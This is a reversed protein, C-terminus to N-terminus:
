RRGGPAKLPSEPRLVPVTVGAPAATTSDSPARRLARNVDDLLAGLPVGRIRCAERVTISRALTKRLWPNALPQFGHLLFAQLTEPAVELLWGVRQDPTALLPRQGSAFTHVADPRARMLAWLGIAWIAIGGVELIGSAGAIAFAKPTFDTAIQGGVRLGCGLNVLVFTPLLGPLRSPDAGALTPVVKAAVGLIMMSIFGVTIAHRAAGHYAHSFTQGSWFLFLPTSVVLALSVFLWSFAARYFKFSRDSEECAGFLGLRAALISASVAFLVAFGYAVDGMPPSEIRWRLLSFAAHGLVGLALLPLLALSLSRPVTPLGYIGPFFRQAVGFIMFSAFGLIQFDRLPPQFAAVRALLESQGSATATLVFLAQDWIAQLAFWGLAAILYLDYAELAKGSRALTRLIITVFLAVAALELAGGMLGLLLMARSEALPESVVRLLLGATMLYFSAVALAPRWLRTHKFRPLAQYAFGMVFLGVWGFIQAHGHANIQALPVATFAGAETIRLLLLAGWVAGATLISAIGAQFFRRYITDAAAPRFSPAPLESRPSTRAEELERLLRQPDVGHARAFFGLSEKPGLAGGCGHLGYADLVPRVQPHAALLEPILEDIQIPQTNPM